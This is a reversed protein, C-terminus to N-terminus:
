RKPQYNLLGGRVIRLADDESLEPRRQCLRYAGVREAADIMSAAQQVREAPTMQGVLAMQALDIEAIAGAIQRQMKDTVLLSGHRNNKQYPETEM